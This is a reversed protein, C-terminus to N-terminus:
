IFFYFFVIMGLLGMAENDYFGAITRSQFGVCIALFFAALLGTKKNGALEKGLFYMAVCTLAGVIAPTIVCTDYVTINFGLLHFFYYFFVGSFPTGLYLYPGMEVGAPAWAMFEHWNFFAVIGNDVIFQSAKFQVYPDLARLESTYKLIPFLRFVLAIVFILIISIYLLVSAKGIQVTPRHFIKRLKWVLKDKFSPM